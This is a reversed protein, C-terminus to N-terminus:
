EEQRRLPSNATEPPSSAGWPRASAGERSPLSIREFAEGVSSCLGTLAPRMVRHDFPRQEWRSREARATQAAATLRYNEPAVITSSTKGNAVGPREEGAASFAPPLSLRPTPGRSSTTPCGSSRPAIRTEKAPAASRTRLVMMDWTSYSTGTETRTRTM